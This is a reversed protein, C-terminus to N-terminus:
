DELQEIVARMRSIRETLTARKFELFPFEHNRGNYRSNIYDEVPTRENIWETLINHLTYATAPSLNLKVGEATKM